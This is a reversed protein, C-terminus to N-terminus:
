DRGKKYLLEENDLEMQFMRRVQDIKAMLYDNKVESPDIQETSLVETVAMMLIELAASVPEQKEARIKKQLRYPKKKNKLIEANLKQGRFYNIM